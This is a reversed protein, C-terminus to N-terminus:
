TEQFSSWAILGAAGRSEAYERSGEPDEYPGNFSSRGIIFMDDFFLKYIEEINCGHYEFVYLSSTPEYTMPSENTYFQKYGLTTSVCGSVLVTLVCIIVFFRKEM